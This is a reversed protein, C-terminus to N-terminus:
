KIGLRSTLKVLLFTVFTVITFTILSSIFHGIRFPGILITIMPMILDNVLTQVSTGLYIGLIFAAALGM